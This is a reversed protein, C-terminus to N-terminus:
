HIQIKAQSTRQRKKRKIINKSTAVKIRRNQPVKKGSNIKNKDIQNELQSPLNSHSFSQQMVVQAGAHWMVMTIYEERLIANSANSHLHENCHWM